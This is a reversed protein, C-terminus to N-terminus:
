QCTKEERRYASIAETIQISSNRHSHVVEPRHINVAGVIKSPRRLTATQTEFNLIIGLPM